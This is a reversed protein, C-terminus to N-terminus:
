AHRQNAHLVDTLAARPRWMCDRRAERVKFPEFGLERQYMRMLARQRWDFDGLSQVDQEPASPLEDFGAPYALLVAIAHEPTLAALASDLALRHDIRSRHPPDIWAGSILVISGYDSPTVFPGDWAERMAEVASGGQESLGDAWFWFEDWYVGPELDFEELTLLAIRQREPGRLWCAFDRCKIAPEDRGENLHEWKSVRYSIRGAPTDARRPYRARHAVEEAVVRPFVARM